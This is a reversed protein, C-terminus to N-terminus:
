GDANRPKNGRDDAWVKTFEAGLLFIGNMCPIRDIGPRVM